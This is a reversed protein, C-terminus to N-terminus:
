ILAGQKLETARAFLPATWGASLRKVALDFTAPDMEAGICRRGELACALLTTAGGACPDVVLDGARSYDSVIARMAALPKGGMVIKDGPPFQYAGRLTGWKAFAKTKPRAVMLWCTWSCPGDGSLRVSSGPSVLPVPAFVYRGLELMADRYSPFLESDTLFAMWGSCRGSWAGVLHVADGSSLSGYTIGRRDAGDAGDACYATHTRESYPPDTIVADCREVDALVDQWRGCRLEITGCPSRWVDGCASM